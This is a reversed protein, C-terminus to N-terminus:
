NSDGSCKLDKEVILHRRISGNKILNNFFLAPTKFNAEVLCLFKFIVIKEENIYSGLVPILGRDM